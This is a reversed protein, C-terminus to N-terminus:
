MERRCYRNRYAFVDRKPTSTQLRQRGRERHKRPARRHWLQAFDHDAFPLRHLRHM